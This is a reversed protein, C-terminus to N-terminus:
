GRADLLASFSFILVYKLGELAQRLICKVVEEEMGSPWAYRMIDAASGANMLRLAIYLRAGAVWSGRVRLVNPHKSLSMLQTERRLLRLAQPPLKELDVVKVACPSPTPKAAAAVASSSGLSSPSSSNAPCKPTYLAAYVVSTAGFGIPAGLEYDVPDDSLSSQYDAELEEEHAYWYRRSPHITPETQPQPRNRFRLPICSSLLAFLPNPSSSLLAQEVGLLRRLFSIPAVVSRFMQWQDDVAGIFKVASSNNAAAAASTGSSPSRAGSGPLISAQGRVVM